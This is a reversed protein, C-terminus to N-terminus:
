AETGEVMEKLMVMSNIYTLEINQIRNRFFRFKKAIINRESAISVWVTGVPKDPTGGDPGAIGSIAVAYNTKFRALCGAAMERVTEESVAGCRNLTEKKVGLMEEKFDYSYAVVSGEFYKSSGAVTTLRHAVYGGTCSEATSLSINRQTFINKIMREIPVDDEVLFFKGVAKKLLVFQQKLLEDEHANSVQSSLRLRVTSFHPLYALKIGAPIQKEFDSILEALTSEGIGATTLTRHEFRIGSSIKKLNPLITEEMMAKMESPVGPMSYFQKYKKEFLMGPATGIPNDIALCNDPLMAQGRNSEPMRIGRSSFILKVKEFISENFVFRSEFFECLVPKTIDDSTPGLGGTIFIFDAIREAASLASKIEDPDDGVSIRQRVAIGAENLKQAIWSSNTDIVQGILLEDGITIIVAHRLASM